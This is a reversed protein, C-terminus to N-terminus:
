VQLLREDLASAALAATARARARRPWLLSAALWLLCSGLPCLIALCVTVALLWAAVRLLLPLGCLLVELAPQHFALQVTSILLALLLLSLYETPCGANHQAAPNPAGPGANGFPAGNSCRFAGCASGPRMCAWCFHTKCRTCAMHNCGGNKEIPAKCKPCPRSFQSMWLDNTSTSNGLVFSAGCEPCGVEMPAIMTRQMAADKVYGTILAVLAYVWWGVTSGQLPEAGSEPAFLMIVAVALFVYVCVLSLTEQRQLVRLREQRREHMCSETVFGGASCHPCSVFNPDDRLARALLKGSHDRYLDRDLTVAIKADEPRMVARCVPCHLVLASSSAEELQAAVWGRMCDRCVRCGCWMVCSEALTAQVYCVPCQAEKRRMVMRGRVYKLLGRSLDGHEWTGSNSPSDRGAWAAWTRLGAAAAIEASGTM